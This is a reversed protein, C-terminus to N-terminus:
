NACKGMACGRTNCDGFYSYCGRHTKFKNWTWSRYKGLTTDNSNSPSEGSLCVIQQNRTLRRWNREFEDCFEAPHARRDGFMHLGSPQEVRLEITCMPQIVDARGMGDEGRWREHTRTVDHVDVCMWYLANQDKQSDYPEPFMQQDDYALDDATVIGFSSTLLRTPYQHYLSKSTQLAANLPTTGLFLLSAAFALWLKLM